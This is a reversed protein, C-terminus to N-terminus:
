TEDPSKEDGKIIDKEWPMHVGRAKARLARLREQEGKWQPSYPNVKRDETM